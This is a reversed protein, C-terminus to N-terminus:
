INKLMYEYAKQVIFYNLFIFGGIGFFVLPLFFICFYSILFLAFLIVFTWPFETFALIFSLSLLNKIKKEPNDSCLPLYYTMIVLWILSLFLSIISFLQTWNQNLTLCFQANVLLITIPLMAFLGHKSGNIFNLKFILLFKKLINDKNGSVRMKAVSYATFLAVPFTILPLSFIILLFSLIIIDAIREILDWFSSNIKFM